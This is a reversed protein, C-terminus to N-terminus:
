GLLLNTSLEKLSDGGRAARTYSNTYMMPQRPGTKLPQPARECRDPGEALLLRCCPPGRCPAAARQFLHREKHGGVRENRWTAFLMNPRSIQHRTLRRPSGSGRPIFCKHSLAGEKRARRSLRSERRRPGPDRGSREEGEKRAARFGRSAAAPVPTEGVGREARACVHTVFQLLLHLSCKCYRLCFTLSQPEKLFSPLCFPPWKCM